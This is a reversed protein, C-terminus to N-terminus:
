LFIGNVTQNTGKATTNGQVSKSNLYAESSPYKRQQCSCNPKRCMREKEKKKKKVGDSL